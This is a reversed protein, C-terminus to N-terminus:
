LILVVATILTVDKLQAVIAANHTFLTAISDKFTIIVIAMFMDILLGAVVALKLYTKAKMAKGEGMSKGVTALAGFQVGLPLMMLVFFTNIAIVQAGAVTVGLFGAIVILSEFGGWELCLM